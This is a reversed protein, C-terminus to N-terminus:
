RNGPRFRRVAARTGILDALRPAVPTGAVALRSALYDRFPIGLKACTNM